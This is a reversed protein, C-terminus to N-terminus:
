GRVVKRLGWAMVFAAILSPLSAGWAAGFDAVPKLLEPPAFGTINHLSSFGGLAQYLVVGIVWAIAGGWMVPKVRNSAAGSFHALVVGFLPVFVAGILYLFDVYKTQFDGFNEVKVIIALATAFVALIPGLARM